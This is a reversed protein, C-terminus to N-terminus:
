ETRKESMIKEIQTLADRAGLPIGVARGNLKSPVDSERPNIRVLFAGRWECMAESEMRITPVSTGAGMEIVVLEGDKVDLGDIYAGYRAETCAFCFVDKPYECVDGEALVGREIVSQQPEEKRGKECLYACMRVSRVCM